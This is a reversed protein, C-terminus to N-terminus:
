GPLTLARLRARRGLNEAWALRNRSVSLGIPLRSRTAATTVAARLPAVFLALLGAALALRMM